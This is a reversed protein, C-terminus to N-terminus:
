ILANMMEAQSALLYKKKKKDRKVNERSPKPIQHNSKWQKEEPAQDEQPM